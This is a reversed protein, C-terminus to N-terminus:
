VYFEKDTLRTSQRSSYDLSLLTLEFGGRASESELLLETLLSPIVQKEEVIIRVVITYILHEQPRHFGWVIFFFDKKM